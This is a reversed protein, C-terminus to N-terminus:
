KEYAKGDAAPPIARGIVGAVAIITVLYPAMLLFESPIPVNLVQLKTQLSDAFGFILSAGFAGFPTWKGFIMAALGIHQWGLNGSVLMALGYGTLAAAATWHRRLPLAPQFTNM